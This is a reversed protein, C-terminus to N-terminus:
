RVKCLTLGISMTAANARLRCACIELSYGVLTQVFDGVALSTMCADKFALEARMKVFVHVVLANLGSSLIIFIFAFWYEQLEPMRGKQVMKGETGFVPGKQDGGEDASRIYIHIKRM